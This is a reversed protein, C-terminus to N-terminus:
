NRQAYYIELPSPTARLVARIPLDELAGEEYARELVALKKEGVIHLYCHRAKLVAPLGLTMRDHPASPPTVAICLNDGQPDLAQPLSAAGPFFSATHGDEGMGLVLVDIHGAFASLKESVTQQALFPSDEHNKMSIFQASTASNQLLHQRILGANSDPHDEALWREDVQTVSVKPWNLTQHSLAQFLAVPTTGGSVALTATGKRAMAATLDQAIRAALEVALASNEKFSQLPHTVEAMSAGAEDMARSWLSQV